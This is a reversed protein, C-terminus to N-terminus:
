DGLPRRADVVFCRAVRGCKVASESLWTSNDGPRLKWTDVNATWPPWAVRVGLQYDNVEELGRCKFLVSYATALRWLLEGTEFGFWQRASSPSQGSRLCICPQRQPVQM